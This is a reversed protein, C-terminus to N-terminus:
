LMEQLVTYSFLFNSLFRINPYQEITLVLPLKSDECFAVFPLDGMIAM